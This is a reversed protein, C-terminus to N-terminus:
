SNGGTPAVPTAPTTPATDSGGRGGHGGPGFGRGRGGLGLSGNDAGWFGKELGELLWDAHERTLTGDTVAQEIADKTATQCAAQVAAQVDTLEVGATEALDALSEGAWLQTKLEDVTMNLADAAAEQGATGCSGRGLGIGGGLHALTTAGSVATNAAAAAQPVALAGVGLMAIGAVLTAVGFLKQWKVM